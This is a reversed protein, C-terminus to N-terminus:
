KRTNFHPKRAPSLAGIAIMSNTSRLSCKSTTVAAYILTQNLKVQSSFVVRPLQYGFYAKGHQGQVRVIEAPKQDNDIMWDHSKFIWLQATFLKVARM